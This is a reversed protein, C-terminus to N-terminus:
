FPYSLTQSSNSKLKGHLHYVVARFIPFLFTYHANTVTFLPQLGGVRFRFGVSEYVIYLPSHAQLHATRSVLLRGLLTRM